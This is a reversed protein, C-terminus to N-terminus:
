DAAGQTPLPFHNPGNQLLKVVYSEAAALSEFQNEVGEWGFGATDRRSVGFGLNPLYEIVHVEEGVTVDIMFAGSPFSTAKPHSAPFMAGVRDCFAEPSATM